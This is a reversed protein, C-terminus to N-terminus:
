AWKESQLAHHLLTQNSECSNNIFSLNVAYSVCLISRLSYTTDNVPPPSLLPAEPLVPGTRKYIVKPPLDAPRDCKIIEEKSRNLMPRPQKPSSTTEKKQEQLMIGAASNVINPWTVNTLIKNLNDWENHFVLNGKGTVIQPILYTDAEDVAKAVATKLELGFSYLECHCLRNLITTLQKNRYLHKLTVFFILIHKNLTLMTRSIGRSLCRWRYLLCFTKSAWM